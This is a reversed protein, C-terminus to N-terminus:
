FFVYPKIIFVKTKLVNKGTREQYPKITKIATHTKKKQQRVKRARHIYTISNETPLTYLNDGVCDRKFPPYELKWNDYNQFLTNKHIM